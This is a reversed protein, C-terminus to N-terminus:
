EIGVFALEDSVLAANGEQEAPVTSRISLIGGPVVDAVTFEYIKNLLKQMSARDKEGTFPMITVTQVSINQGNFEATNKEVKAADRFARRIMNRYYVPEGGVRRKMEWLDRELFVMIIPNGTIDIHPGLDRQRKGSFMRLMVSNLGGPKDNKEVNVAITDEFPKGFTKEASTSHRYSYNLASPVALQKLYPADFLLAQPTGLEGASVPVALQLLVAAAFLQRRVPTALISKKENRAM